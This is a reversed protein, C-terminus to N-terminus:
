VIKKVMSDDEVESGKQHSGDSRASTKRNGKASIPRKLEGISIPGVIMVFNVRDRKRVVKPKLRNANSKTGSLVKAFSQRARSAM